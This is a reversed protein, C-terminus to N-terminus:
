HGRSLNWVVGACLRLNNQVNGGDNPFATRQWVAELVRVTIRQTLTRNV